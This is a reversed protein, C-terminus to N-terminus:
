IKIFPLSDVLQLKDYFQIIYNGTELNKVSIKGNFPLESWLKGDMGLIRIQQITLNGKLQFNLFESTPNPYMLVGGKSYEVTTDSSNAFLFQYGAGFERAWYFEQHKGDAPSVYGLQNGPYGKEIMKTRMLETKVVVDDDAEENGGAMFYFRSPVNIPETTVLPYMEPNFWFSPSFILGKGFTGGYKLMAYQSILGGLSSGGIGTNVKDPKTRYAKDIAPKLNDTIFRIYQDGEGGAQYKQNRWAAYEDLRKGGGNDIGVIIIGPDGKKFLEDMTEDVRWEGAFSYYDDFLNQGDQLYMVPYNKQSTTYDPPTYVWIRRTRGLAPVPFKEDFIKVNPSATHPKGSGLDEWSLIKVTLTDKGGSYSFIRNPTYGGSANGEVKTWSGRTFKLEYSGSNLTMTLYYFNDQKVCIHSPSAPNWANFSGVAYINDAAPTASPIAAVKITLQAHGAVVACCYLIFFYIIKMRRIYNLQNVHLLLNTKFLGYKDKKTPWIWFSIM